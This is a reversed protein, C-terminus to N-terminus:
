EPDELFLDLDNRIQPKDQKAIQKCVAMYLKALKEWRVVCRSDSPDLEFSILAKWTTALIHNLEATTM